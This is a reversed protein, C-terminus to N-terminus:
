EDRPVEVPPTEGDRYADVLLHLDVGSISVIQRAAQNVSYDFMSQYQLQILKTYGFTPMWAQDHQLDQGRLALNQIDYYEALEDQNSRLVFKVMYYLYLTLNPDDTIVYVATTCAELMGRQDVRQGDARDVEWPMARMAVEGLRDGLFTGQPDESEALNVVAILPLADASRPYNAIVQINTHERLWNKIQKIVDDGLQQFLEDILRSEDLTERIRRLSFGILQRFVVEPIRMGFVHQNPQTFNRAPDLIEREDIM